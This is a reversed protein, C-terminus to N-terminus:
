LILSPNIQFINVNSDTNLSEICIIIQIPIHTDNASSNM